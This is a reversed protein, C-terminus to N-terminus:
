AAALARNIRTIAEDIEATSKFGIVAADVLGSQMVFRISKERDEPQTFEGEGMVKMAIIGKGKERIAKIEKLVPQIDNGDKNWTEEPGDIRKAQPNIRVLQVDVWDTEATRSLAPISHCSIGKARILKKAKAEELADMLRKQDDPWSRKVMCHMLLSDIYDTGLEKLYREIVELPKDPLGPMKSQIFLKERPLGKIAERVWEHTQYSQATDIYTICQDYAYRVLKNFGEHGLARQVSGGITGTGIGLRSLKLGTKGLAVQDAATRRGAPEAATLLAPTFWAAGALAASQELFQRRSLHSSKM